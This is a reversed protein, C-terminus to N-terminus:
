PLNREQYIAECLRSLTRQEEVTLQKAFANQVAQIDAHMERLLRRGQATIRHMTLRRDRASRSREALGKKVLRDTLRTVDPSRDIMRDLIDCRPYGEEPAGALIRLVNYHSAALDYRSCVAEVEGRVTAAAVMLNLMAEQAPSDFGRTQKIREQLGSTM